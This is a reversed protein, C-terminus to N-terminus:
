LRAVRDARERAEAGTHAVHDRPQTDTAPHAEPATTDMVDGPTLEATM